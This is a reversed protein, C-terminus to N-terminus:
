RRWSIRERYHGLAALLDEVNDGGLKTLYADALVLAVM